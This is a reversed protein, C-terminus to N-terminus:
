IRGYIYLDARKPKDSICMMRELINKDVLDPHVWWDEFDSFRDESINNVVMVYGFSELYKRSREKIEKHEDCFNDHEFTIVAFRYKEFPIKQLIQFSIIAPDCDIQLYDIDRSEGLATKFDLKTADVCLASSREITFKDIVKQDIDISLGVWAFEKWLLATNNSFWSDGCGIEVYEGTKKGKLMMLVFMDQFCQSYNQKIESAGPFKMRLEHYMSDNYRLEHKWTYGFNAINKKVADMYIGQISNDKELQRCLYMSEDYLGIWWATVAREFTFGYKGPYGVDTMLKKEQDHVLSEGIVAFTYGEHWDKNWECIRSMIFYAEPREPMLSIARLVVGKLSYIRNGTKEICLAMRLVSEYTFLGDVSLEAARLYFSLASANQNNNEYCRGLEFNYLPYKPDNIYSVLAKNLNIDTTM